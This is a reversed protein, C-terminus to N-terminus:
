RDVGASGESTSRADAAPRTDEADQRTTHTNSASSPIPQSASANQSSALTHRGDSLRHFLKRNQLALLITNRKVIREKLVGAVLEDRSLPQPSAKLLRVLVDAVTGPEYGWEKLGYLGRGVLVFRADRILENHVTQVHAVRRDFRAENIRETIATFHLPKGERKLVVYAKDGVGHPTVEAWGRLGWDGFPTRVVHRLVTLASRLSADEVPLAARSKLSRLFEDDPLVRKEETLVGRARDLVRTLDVHQAQEYHSWFRESERVDSVNPLSRLLLHLAARDTDSELYLLSALVDERAVGGLRKLLELLAERVRPIAGAAKTGRFTHLVHQEIQRIRERTVGETTGIAHLTKPEGGDLGFRRSVIRRSRQDLDRLLEAAAGHIATPTLVEAHTPLMHVSIGDRATRTTSLERMRTNKM